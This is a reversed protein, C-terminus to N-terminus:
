CPHTEANWRVLILPAFRIVEQLGELECEYTIKVNTAHTHVEWKCLYSSFPRVSLITSISAETAKQASTDCTNVSCMCIFQMFKAIEPIPTFLLISVQNM